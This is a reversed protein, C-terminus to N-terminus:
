NQIPNRQDNKSGRLTCSPSVVQNQVVVRRGRDAYARHFPQQMLEISPNNCRTRCM